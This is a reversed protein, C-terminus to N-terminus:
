NFGVNFGDPERTADLIAKVEDVLALLDLREDSSAEWWTSILRRPVVLTHGPSVPYGDSIAFASRNSALWDTKPVELFPSSDPLIARSVDLNITSRRRARARLGAVPHSSTAPTGAM